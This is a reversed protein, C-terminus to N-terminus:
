RWWRERERQQIHKEMPTRKKKQRDRDIKRWWHTNHKVCGKKKSKVWISMIQLNPIKSLQGYWGILTDKWGHLKGVNKPNWPKKFKKLKIRSTEKSHKILLYIMATM